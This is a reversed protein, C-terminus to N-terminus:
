KAIEFYGTEPNIIMANGDKDIQYIDNETFNEQLREPTVDLIGDIDINRIIVKEKSTGLIKSGNALM